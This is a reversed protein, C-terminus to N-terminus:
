RRSQPLHWSTGHVQVQEEDPLPAELYWRLSDKNLHLSIMMFEEISGVRKRIEEFVSRRISYTTVKPDSLYRKLWSM